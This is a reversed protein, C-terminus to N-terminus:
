AIMLPIKPNSPTTDELLVLSAARGWLVIIALMALFHFPIGTMASTDPLALGVIMQVAVTCILGFQLIRVLFLNRHEAIAIIAQHVSVEMSLTLINWFVQPTTIWILFTGILPQLGKAAGAFTPLHASGRSREMSAIIDLLAPPV